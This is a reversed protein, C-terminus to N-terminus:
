KPRPLMDIPTAKPNARWWDHELIARSTIRKRPNLELMTALLDIGSQGVSSFRPAFAQRLPLTQANTDRAVSLYADFGELKTVGPWTSENPLGIAQTIVEIQNLDTSGPLFATRIVLEAFVTGISWVDVAGGYFRAKMFLEPPRYWRTVVNSTMKREPDALERALGFDALKLAGDSGILLNSPKIDRHLISRLHCFYTAQCLMNMWAKIDAVGYLVMDTSKILQDLDGLPLFELVMNITQNETSFVDFLKVIFQHRLEQLCRVERIVDHPIGGKLIPNPKTQKIAFKQSKDTALHSAFVIAYTGEGLTKGVVYRDRILRNAVAGLSGVEADSLDASLVSAPSSAIHVQVAPSAMTAAM